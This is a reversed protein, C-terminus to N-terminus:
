WQTFAYRCLRVIKNGCGQSPAAKGLKSTLLSLQSSPGPNSEGGRGGEADEWTLNSDQQRSTVCGSGQTETRDRTM